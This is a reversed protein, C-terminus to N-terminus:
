AAVLHKAKKLVKTMQRNVDEVAMDLRERSDEALDRLQRRTRTGSQPAYLLGVLVGAGFVIGSVVFGNIDFKM